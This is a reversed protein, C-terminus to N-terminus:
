AAKFGNSFCYIGNIQLWYGANGKKDDWYRGLGVRVYVENQSHVFNNYVYCNDKEFSASQLYEHLRLDTISLFSFKKGNNDVIHARYRSPNFKDRVINIAKPSISLTMISRVPALEGPICKQGSNLPVEFGDEVSNFASGALVYGFEDSTCHGNFALNQYDMDETHPKNANNSRSFNGTLVAGPKMELENCKKVKLYPLPRVCELNEQDIGATCLIEGNAFRTMDTVIIKRM